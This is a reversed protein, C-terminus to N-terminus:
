QCSLMRLSFTINEDCISQVILNSDASLSLFRKLNDSRNVDPFFNLDCAHFKTWLVFNDHYRGICAVDGKEINLCAFINSIIPVISLFKCRYCSYAFLNNNCSSNTSLDSQNSNRRKRISKFLHKSKLM